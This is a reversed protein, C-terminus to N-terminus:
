GESITEEASNWSPPNEESSPFRLAECILSKEFSPENSEKWALASTLLKMSPPYMLVGM